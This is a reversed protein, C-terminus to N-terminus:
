RRAGHLERFAQMVLAQKKKPLFRAVAKHFAAENPVAEPPWPGSGVTVEALDQEDGCANCTTTDLTSLLEWKQREVSWAAFADSCVDDSGCFKCVMKIRKSM